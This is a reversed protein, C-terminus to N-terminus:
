RNRVPQGKATKGNKKKLEGRKYYVFVEGDQPIPKTSVMFVRSGVTEFRANCDRRKPWTNAFGAVSQREVYWEM